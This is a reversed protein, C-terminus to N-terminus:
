MNQLPFIVLIYYTSFALHQITHITLNSKYYNLFCMYFISQYIYYCIFM